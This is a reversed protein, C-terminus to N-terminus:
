SFQYHQPAPLFFPIWFLAGYAPLSLAHADLKQLRTKAKTAEAESLAAGSSCRCPGDWSRGALYAQHWKLEMVQLTLLARERSEKGSPLQASFYMIELIKEQPKGTAIPQATNMEQLCWENGPHWQSILYIVRHSSM